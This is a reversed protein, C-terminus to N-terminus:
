MPTRGTTCAAPRHGADRRPLIRRRAAYAEGLIDIAPRVYPALEDVDRALRVPVNVAGKTRGMVRRATAAGVGRGTSGIAAVLAVESEVDAAEIIMAQPDISLRDFEVQCNAIEQQLVELDLM